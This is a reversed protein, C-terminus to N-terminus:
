LCVVVILVAANTNIYSEVKMVLFRFVMFSALCVNLGRGFCFVDTAKSEDGEYYMDQLWPSAVSCPVCPFVRFCVDLGACILRAFPTEPRTGGKIQVSLPLRFGDLSLVVLRSLLFSFSPPFLSHHAAPPPRAPPPAPRCDPKQSGLVATILAALHPVGRVCRSLLSM